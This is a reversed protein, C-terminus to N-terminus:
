LKTYSLITLDHTMLQSDVVDPKHICHVDTVLLYFLVIRVIKLM